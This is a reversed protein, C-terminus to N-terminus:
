IKTGLKKTLGNQQLFLFFSSFTPTRTLSMHTRIEQSFSLSLSLPLSLSFSLPPSSSVGLQDETEGNKGEMHLFISLHWGCEEM